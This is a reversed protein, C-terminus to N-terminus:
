KKRYPNPKLLLSVFLSLLSIVTFHYTIGIWNRTMHNMKIIDPMLPTIVGDLWILMPVHVAMIVMSNKGFLSLGWAIPSCHALIRSFVVLLYCGFFSALYFCWLGQNGFWSANIDVRGNRWVCLLWLAAAPITLLVEALQGKRKVGSASQELREELYKLLHGAYFFGQTIMALEFGWPLREGRERLKWGGAIILCVVLGELLYSQCKSKGKSGVWLVLYFWLNAVFFMTLFWIPLNPLYNRIGIGWLMGVAYHVFETQDDPWAYLISFLAFLFYPQVLRYFKKSLFSRFGEGERREAWYGGIILFIPLQVSYVMQNLRGDYEFFRNMHGLIVLLIGIGKAVDIWRKRQIM